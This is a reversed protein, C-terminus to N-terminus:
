VARWVAVPLREFLLAAPLKSLPEIIAGPDLVSEWCRERWHPPLEVAAAGWADGLCPWGVSRALRPVAVVIVQGEWERAFALLSGGHSGVGELPHYAGEGFVEPSERRLVLLRHVVGLKPLGSRWNEEFDGFGEQQFHRLMQRRVGYDVPRRNDPDVLDFRWLENGQYNDPVGPVTLRLLTAALGNCAGFRAVTRQFPLFDELFARNGLTGRLYAELGAEYDEDPSTWSTHVKAERAAKHLYAVMRDIFVERDGPPENAPWAGLLTQFILYEDNRSPATVGGAERKFRRTLRSWRFVRSRWAEPMEALVLLRARVDESRKIDHTSAALLNHPWSEARRRNAAHFAEMSVAFVSPDGGVENRPTLRQYRYGATDELGKAMVPVTYQQFRQVFQFARDRLGPDRDLSPAELLLLDRLFRYVAADEGSAHRIASNVALAIEARDQASAIGPSVYTRYVPFRAAVEALADRLGNLTFDRTHRDSQAIADAMNALVTLEGSLQSRIVLRKCDYLVQEFAPQARIFRHYLRTLGDEGRPDILLGDVLSAFEYGTTGEVPWDAPLQEHGALIKEVVLYGSFFERLRRTYDAPDYLGDVHDIRLGQLDGSTVLQRVLAHIDAFVAPLEVSLCALDNIDFFRRYNIEDAAVRWYALRYPQAEVLEHLRDFTRPEGKSGNFAEAEENIAAMVEPRETCLAQLRRKLEPAYARRRAVEEATRADRHPLASFALRLEALADRSAPSDLRQEAGGFVMPYTHPDLPFHHEYYHLGLGGSEADLALRLAGQELIAGYHDGLVPLLVRDRLRELVPRWDIDFYDAHVAARGNELVDLWWANDSGGVGMHNSVLDLVHGMGHAALAAVFAKFGSADGIEPHFSNHDTIDYGHPSNQRAKLYPSCYVHSIGLAALYPVLEAADAFTCNEGMQLRYTADPIPHLPSM